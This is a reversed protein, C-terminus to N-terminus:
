TPNIQKNKIAYMKRDDLYYVGVVTSSLGMIDESM